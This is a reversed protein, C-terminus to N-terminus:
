LAVVRAGRPNMHEVIRKITGGKGAADRGEFLMIIRLGKDKVHNQLKLLEIQLKRLELEYEITTKKIYVPVRDKNSKKKLNKGAVSESLKKPSIKQPEKNM